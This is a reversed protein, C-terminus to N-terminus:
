QRIACHVSRLGRRAVDMAIMVDWETGHHASDSPTHEAGVTIKTHYERLDATEATEQIQQKLKESKSYNALLATSAPVSFKKPM